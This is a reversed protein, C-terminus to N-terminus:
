YLAVVGTNWMITNSVSDSISQAYVTHVTANYNAGFNSTNPILNKACMPYIYIYYQDTVTQETNNSIHIYTYVYTAMM